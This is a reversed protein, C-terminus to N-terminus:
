DEPLLERPELLNSLRESIAWRFFNGSLLNFKRLIEPVNKSNSRESTFFDMDIIYVERKDATQGIGHRVICSAGPVEDLNITAETKIVKVHQGVGDQAGLLGLLSPKLLADWPEIKIGLKKRDIIDKYRLGIRTYFAPKYTEELAIQALQFEEIFREWRVYKTDSYAIFESNLSIFKHGNASIFKYTSSKSPQSIPLQAMLDAIEKPFAPQDVEM